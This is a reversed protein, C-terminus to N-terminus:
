PLLCGEVMVLRTKWQHPFMHLDLTLFTMQSGCEFIRRRIAEGAVLLIVLVFTCVSLFALGTVRLAIPLDDCEVVVQVGFVRQPPSMDCGLALGAMFPVQIFVLSWDIAIGAVLFIVLMLASKGLSAGATVGFPIPFEQKELMIAIGRIRQLTVVPLRLAVSAVLAHKVFVLCRGVAIGTMLFVVNM